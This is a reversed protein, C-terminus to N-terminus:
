QAALYQRVISKYNSLTLETKDLCSHVNFESAKNFIPQNIDASIVVITGTYGADRIQPVTQSFDTFPHLQSDLFIVDPQEDQIYELTRELSSAYHVSVDPLTRSYVSILKHQHDNDDVFLVSHQGM